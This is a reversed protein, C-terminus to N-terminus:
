SPLTKTFGYGVQAGLQRRDSSGYDAPSYTPSISVEVRFPPRDVPLKLVKVEGAAITFHLTRFLGGLHPQKDKGKILRGVRVLVNGPKIPAGSASVRSINVIVFGGKGDPTTYQNYASRAAPCPLGECGTQGDSFVGEQSHALALPGDIRYVNWRGSEPPKAVLTGAVDVGPEAVVWKLGPPSQSLRGTAPDGLDPTLIAGPGPATGDTSWVYKLSPNWFEMLWVGIASGSDIKQGLYLAPEGGTIRDLFDLPRPFNRILSSGAQQSYRSASIQGTLQWALVLTATLLLAGAPGHRWRRLTYPASILGVSLVLAVILAWQADDPTFALNRNSMQAIALGLADFYPVENFAYPTSVILYAVFGVACALPVLRLRPRELWLATAVMLPPIVYILNREEIRTALNTSIYAAKVATYFGFCVLASGLVALFARLEPSRPEGRPRVLSAIGVLAPLIGVGIVLAGAAWLGLEIMRGRYYGTAILWSQSWHGMVASLMILAGVFLTIAGLWDTRTWRARWAAARPGTWWLVLSALILVAPIVGLQGRVLPAIVSVVIAAAIWRRSRVALARAIVLFAFAAYTYAAPEPVLIPAYALAPVAGTAAAAFLAARKSAITRALLYAPVIALTMVFVGLYKAGNYGDQVDGLGWMPAQVFNWLSNFSHAEGRRAAHGTAEIARQLQASELEDTFNWPTKLRSAEWAYLLGLWVYVSALPIASYIRDLLTSRPTPHESAAVASM